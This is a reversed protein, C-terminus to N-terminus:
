FRLIISKFCSNALEQRVNKSIVFVNKLDTENSWKSVPRVPIPDSLRANEVAVGSGLM